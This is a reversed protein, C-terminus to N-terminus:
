KRFPLRFLRELRASTKEGIGDVQELEPGTASFLRQLTGFRELLRSARGPGVGPLSAVVSLQIEDDPLDKPPVALHYEKGASAGAKRAMSVLYHHTWVPNHSWLIPVSWGNEVALLVAAISSPRWGTFKELLGMPGEVLLFKKDADSAKMKELERWLRGDRISNALDKVEKREVLFKAREGPVFYDGADLKEVRVELKERLSDVFKANTSAERSDVVILGEM